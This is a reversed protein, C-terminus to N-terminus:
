PWWFDKNVHCIRLWLTTKITNFDSYQQGHLRVDKHNCVWELSELNQLDSRNSSGWALPVCVPHRTLQLSATNKPANTAWLPHLAWRQHQPPQWCRDSNWRAWRTTVPENQSPLLPTQHPLFVSCGQADHACVVLLWVRAVPVVLVLFGEALAFVPWNVAYQEKTICQIDPKLRCCSFM